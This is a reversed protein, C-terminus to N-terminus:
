PAPQIYIYSLSDFDKYKKQVNINNKNAEMEDLLAKTPPNLPAGIASIVQFDFDSFVDEASTSDGFNIDTIGTNDLNIEVMDVLLHLDIPGELNLNDSLILETFEFAIDFRLDDVSLLNYSLDLRVFNSSRPFVFYDNGTCDSADCSIKNGRLYAFKLKADKSIPLTIKSIQNNELYLTDINENSGLDIETLLNDNLRLVSLNTNKKLDIDTLQNKRIDILDLKVNKSLDIHTIQNKFLNLNILKKNNSLDLAAISVDGVFANDDLVLEELNENKSLDLFSIDNGSLVLAELLPNKTTDLEDLSNLDLFAELLKPNHSLDIENFRNASLDLFELNPFASLDVQSLRNTNLILSRINPFQELGKLSSLGVGACIIDRVEKAKLGSTLRAVCERLVDDEFIDQIDSKEPESIGALKKLSDCSQLSFFLLFCLSYKTFRSM